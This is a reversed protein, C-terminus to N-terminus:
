RFNFPLLRLLGPVRGEGPNELAAAVASLDFKSSGQRAERLARGLAQDALDSELSDLCTAVAAIVLGIVVVTGDLKFSTKVARNLYVRAMERDQRHVLLGRYFDILEWPHFHGVQWQANGALYSAASGAAYVYRLYMHHVYPFQRAVARAVAAGADHLETQFRARVIEAVLPEADPLKWDMRNIAQYTKTRLIQDDRLQLDSLRDFHGIAQQFEYEAQEHKGLFANCQGRTSFFRGVLDAGLNRLDSPEKWNLELVASAEEFAFVNTYSEAENLDSLLCLRPDESFVQSRVQKFHGFFRVDGPSGGLHNHYRLRNLYVLLQQRPALKALAKNRETILSLLRGVQEMNVTEAEFLRGVYDVVEQLHVPDRCLNERLRAAALKALGHGESELRAVQEVIQISFEGQLAASVYGRGERDLGNLDALCLDGSTPRLECLGQCEEFARSAVRFFCIARRLGDTGAALEARDRARTLHRVEYYANALAAVALTVAMMGRLICEDIRGSLAARVTDCLEGALDLGFDFAGASRWPEGVGVIRSVVTEPVLEWDMSDVSVRGIGTAMVLLLSLWCVDLVMSSKSTKEFDILRLVDAASRNAPVEETLVINRPNLDRHQVGWPLSVTDQRWADAYFACWLPNARVRQQDIYVEQDFRPFHWWNWDAENMDRAKDAWPSFLERTLEFASGSRACSTLVNAGFFEGLARVAHRAQDRLGQQVLEDLTPNRRRVAPAFALRSLLCYWGGAECAQPQEPVLPALWSQKAVQHGHSEQEFVNRDQTCKLIGVHQSGGRPRYEVLLVASGSRGGDLPRTVVLHDLGFREKCAEIRDQEVAIPVDPLSM